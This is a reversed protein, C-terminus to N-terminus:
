EDVDDVDAQGALRRRVHSWSLGVALITALVVLVIWTMVTAENPDLFQYDILAWVVAAFFLAALVLGIPGISRWTARLYIVYLILLTIGVLAKIPLNEQGDQMVWNVFSYETPNFTALVLVLALIWRVIFSGATFQNQAM